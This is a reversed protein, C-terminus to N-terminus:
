RCLVLGMAAAVAITGPVSWKFRVLLVLSVAGIIITAPSVSGAVVYNSMSQQVIIAAIMGIAVPRIGYLARGLIRSERFRALFAAALLAVTVSPLLVGATASLAGLVGATRHGAFTACNLGLPGPTMEAIAVIDAVEQMTMWRHSIMQDNILPIMSMGGFSTFGILAFSIFLELYIM